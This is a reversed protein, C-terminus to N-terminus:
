ALKTRLNLVYWMLCDRSCALHLDSRVVVNCCSVVVNETTATLLKVIMWAVAPESVQDMCFKSDVVKTRWLLSTLDNVLNFSEKVKFTTAGELELVIAEDIKPNPDFLWVKPALNALLKTVGVFVALPCGVSQVKVPNKHISQNM